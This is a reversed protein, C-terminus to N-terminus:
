DLEGRQYRELEDPDYGEDNDILEDRLFDNEVPPATLRVVLQRCLREIFSRNRSSRTVIWIMLKERREEVVNALRRSRVPSNM